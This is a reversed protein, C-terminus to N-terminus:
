PAARREGKIFMLAGTDSVAAAHPVGPPMLQYDGVSLVVSGTRVSGELILCEEFMAHDHAPYVAGKAMRLLSSQMGADPDFFLIKREIGPAVTEWIGEAAGITLGGAAAAPAAAIAEDIRDWLDVPPTIAEAAPALNQLRRRWAAVLESLDEDHECRAAVDQAAGPDLTGLVYEAALVERDDSTM